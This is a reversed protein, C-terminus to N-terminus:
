ESNEKRSKLIKSIEDFHFPFYNNTDVGVDMSLLNIDEILFGHSHGYLHWAGHHSKNWVRMAYHCLTIQQNNIKGHFIPLIQKFKKNKMHKSKDHNGLIIIINNCILQNVYNNIEYENKAFAFDGLHYLTDNYKVKKNINNILSKDMQEKDLFPRKCYKIINSHNFHTDATFWINEM